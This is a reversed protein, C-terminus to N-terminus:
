TVCDEGVWWGSGGGAGFPPVEAGSGGDGPSISGNSVITDNLCGRWGGGGVFCNGSAAGYRMETGDPPFRSQGVAGGGLM